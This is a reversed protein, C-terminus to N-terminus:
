KCATPERVVGSCADGRSCPMELGPLQLQRADDQQVDRAVRKVREVRATEKSSEGAWAFSSQGEHYRHKPPRPCCVPGAGNRISEPSTLRRGCFRCCTAADGM